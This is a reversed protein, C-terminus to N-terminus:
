NVTVLQPLRAAQQHIVEVFVPRLVAPSDEVDTTAPPGGADPARLRQVCVDGRYVGVGVYEGEQLSGRFQVPHLDRATLGNEAAAQIGDASFSIIRM